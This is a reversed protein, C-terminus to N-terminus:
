RDVVAEVPPSYPRYRTSMPGSVPRGLVCKWLDIDSDNKM